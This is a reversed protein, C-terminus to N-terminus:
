FYIKKNLETFRFKITDIPNKDAVYNVIKAQALLLAILSFRCLMKKGFSGKGLMTKWVKCNERGTRHRARLGM